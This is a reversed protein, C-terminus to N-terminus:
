SCYKSFVLGVIFAAFLTGLLCIFLFLLVICLIGMIRFFLSITAKQIMPKFFAQTDEGGKNTGDV